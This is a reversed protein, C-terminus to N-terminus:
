IGDPIRQADQVFLARTTPNDLRQGLARVLEGRLVLPFREPTAHLDAIAKLM